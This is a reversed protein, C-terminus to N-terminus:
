IYFIIIKDLELVYLGGHAEVTLQYILWDALVMILM